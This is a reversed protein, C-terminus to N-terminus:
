AASVPLAVSDHELSTWVGKERRWRMGVTGPVRRPSKARSRLSSDRLRRSSELVDATVSSTPVVTARGTRVLAELREWHPECEERYEQLILLCRRSLGCLQDLAPANARESM